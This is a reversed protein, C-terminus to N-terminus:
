KKKNFYYQVPPMNFDCDDMDKMAGAVQLILYDRGEPVPLEQGAVEDFVEKISRALRPTHKNGPLFMNFLTYRDISVLQIEVNFQKDLYDFLEQFTM